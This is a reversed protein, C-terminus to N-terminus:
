RRRTAAVCCERLRGLGPAIRVEPIAGYGLVIGAPSPTSVGYSSLRDLRVGALTAREAIEAELALGGARLRAALHMGTVSPVPTLWRAFDRQLGALIAQHRAAYARRARRLQRALLGEEILSALAGQEPWPVHWASM